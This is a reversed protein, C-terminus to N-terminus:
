ALGVLTLVLINSGSELRAAMFSAALFPALAAVSGVSLDIGGTLIIATMGVAVVAVRVSQDLINLLNSPQRFEPQIAAFILTVILLAIYAGANRWLIRMTRRLGKAKIRRAKIRWLLLSKRSEARFWTFCRN